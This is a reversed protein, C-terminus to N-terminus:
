FIFHEQNETCFEICDMPSRGALLYSVGKWLEYWQEANPTSVGQLRPETALDRFRTYLTLREVDTFHDCDARLILRKGSPVIRCNLTSFRRDTILNLPTPPVTPLPNADTDASSLSKEDVQAGATGDTQSTVAEDQPSPNSLDELGTASTAKRKGKQKDPPLDPQVSDSTATIEREIENIPEFQSPMPAAIGITGSGDLQTSSPTPTIKRKKRIGSESQLSGSAVIDDSTSTDNDSSPGVAGATADEQTSSPLSQTTDLESAEAKIVPSPRFPQFHIPALATAPQQTAPVM